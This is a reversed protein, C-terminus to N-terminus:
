AVKLVIKGFMDGKSLRAMAEGGNELPFTSDLVPSVKGEALLKLVSYFESRNSMTSGRISMNRWFVTRLDVEVSAGTTAGCFVFRGGRAVAKMSSSFTATGTSDFVLDFGKKQSAEWLGKALPRDATPVIIEDAGLKRAKEGKESSRTSVVVRAGRWHALQIAATVLGGGAGIIAASEGEKLEGVTMLARWATLFVLPAAAGQVFDLREPLKVVNIAPLVAFDSAMGNTHEGVIGYNRCLVDQGRKCLECTGDSLNPDILVKEGMKVSTVGAGVEDVTGSGDAAIVHPLPIPIGQIGQLCFLDLHNLGAARVAVRVQGPGAHPEPLDLLSLKSLDGHEKFGFGRVAEGEV